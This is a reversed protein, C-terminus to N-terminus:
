AGAAGAGVPVGARVPVGAMVPKDGGCPAGDVGATAPLPLAMAAAFGLGTAVEEDLAAGPGEPEADTAETSGLAGTEAGAALGRGTKTGEGKAPGEEEPRPPVEIAAAGAPDADM